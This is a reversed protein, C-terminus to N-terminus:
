GKAKPRQRTKKPKSTAETNKEAPKQTSKKPQAKPKKPSGKPTSDDKPPTTARKNASKKRRRPSKTKPEEDGFDPVFDIKRDDLNVGAVKIRLPDGMKFVRGNREGILQLRDEDFHYYDRSLNSIHVLGDINLSNITVFLGFRTVGSVNGDFSEGLQERMYACKLWAVVERTAEDARREFQSCQAALAELDAPKTVLWDNQKLRKSGKMRLLNVGPKNRILYRICRHVMLDPYRRIPSTFHTYEKYSLGFHGKCDTEYRAQNMSRLLITQLIQSDPRDEISELFDRYENPTPDGSIKPKTGFAQLASVLSQVRDLGPPEHNRYVGPAEHKLLLKATCVNAALMMEEIIRHAENRVIPVVSAIHGHQDFLIDTEATDFELAGRDQRNAFLSKYLSHLETLPKALEPHQESIKPWNPYNKNQEDETGSIFQSVQNYTLRAHSQIVAECFLFKSIKGKSSISMECVLALRDVHPKLSCLENSLQEPLMPVVRHPFYVSTGRKQAEEDLCSDKVVYHSVDAIAVMLKWGGSPKKCAYVADDFDRASEGDITVFPINRLDVRAHMDKDDPAKYQDAFAVVEASWHDPIEHRRIALETQQFPDSSQGLNEILHVETPAIQTPYQVIRAIVHDNEEPLIHEHPQIIITHNLRHDDPVLQGMGSKTRHFRGMITTISRKLTEVVIGQAQDKYTEESLRVLVRDNHFLGRMQRGSITIEEGQDTKCLGNGDKKTVISGALLNLKRTFGYTQARTKLLVGSHINEELKQELALHDPNQGRTELSQYLEDFTMPQGAQALIAIIAEDLASYRKSNYIPSGQYHLNKTQKKM